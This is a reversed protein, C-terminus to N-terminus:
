DCVVTCRRVGSCVVACQTCVNAIPVQEVGGEAGVGLDTKNIRNLQRLMVLQM